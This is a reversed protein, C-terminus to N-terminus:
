AEIQDQTFMPSWRPSPRAGQEHHLLEAVEIAKTALMGTTASFTDWLLLAETTEAGPKSELASRLRLRRMPPPPHTAGPRSYWNSASREAAALNGYQLTRVFLEFTHQIELTLGAAAAVLGLPVGERGLAAAAVELGTIDAEHEREWARIVVPGDGPEDDWAQRQEVLHGRQIHGYEHAVVFLEGGRRLAYSLDDWGPEALYTEATYASGTVALAGVAQNFRGSTQRWSNAIEARIAAERFDWRPGNPETRRPFCRALAKACLHQMSFIGDDLLVVFSSDRNKARRTIANASGTPLLGMAIHGRLGSTRGDGASEELETEVQARIQSLLNAFTPNQLIPRGTSELQLVQEQLEKYVRSMTASRPDDTAQAEEVMNRLQELAAHAQQIPWGQAADGQIRFWFNELTNQLEEQGVRRDVALDTTM